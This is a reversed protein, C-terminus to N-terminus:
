EDSVAGMRKTLSELTDVIAQFGAREEPYDREDLFMSERLIYPASEFFYDIAYEVAKKEDETLIYVFRKEKM